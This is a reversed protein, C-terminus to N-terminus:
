ATKQHPCKTKFMTGEKESIEISKYMERESKEEYRLRLIWRLEM